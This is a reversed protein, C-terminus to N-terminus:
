YVHLCVSTSVLIVHNLIKNDGCDFLEDTNNTVQSDLYETIVDGNNGVHIIHCWGVYVGSEM